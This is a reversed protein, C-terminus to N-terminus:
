FAGEAFLDDPKAPKDQYAEQSKPTDAGTWGLVYATISYTELEGTVPSHGVDTGIRVLLLIWGDALHANVLSDRDLERVQKVDCISFEAMFLAGQLLPKITTACALTM